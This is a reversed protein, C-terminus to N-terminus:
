EATLNVFRTLLDVDAWVKKQVIELRRTKQKQWITVPMRRIKRGAAGGRRLDFTVLKKQFLRTQYSFWLTRLTRLRSSRPIHTDGFNEEILLCFM